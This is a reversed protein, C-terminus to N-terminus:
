VQLGQSTSMWDNSQDRHAKTKASVDSIDSPQEWKKALKFYLKDHFWINSEREPSSLVPEWMYDKLATRCPKWLKYDTPDRRAKTKPLYMMFM